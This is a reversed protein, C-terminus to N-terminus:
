DGLTETPISNSSEFCTQQRGSWRNAWVGWGFTSPCSKTPQNNNKKEVEEVRSLTLKTM